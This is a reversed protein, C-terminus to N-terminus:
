EGGIVIMANKTIAHTGIGAYMDIETEAHTASRIDLIIHLPIIEELYEEVAYVIDWSVADEIIVTMTDGETTMTYTDGGIMSTLQRRIYTETYPNKDYWKAKVRARRMEISDTDQPAIRLIKERRKIGAETATDIFLDNKRAQIEDHLDGCQAEAVSRIAKMTYTEELHPPLIINRLEAM